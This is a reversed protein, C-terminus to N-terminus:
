EVISLIERRHKLFALACYLFFFAVLARASSQGGRRTHMFVSIPIWEALLLLALGSGRTVASKQPATKDGVQDTM